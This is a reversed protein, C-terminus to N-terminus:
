EMTQCPVAPKDSCWPAHNPMREAYTMVTLAVLAAAALAGLALFLGLLVRAWWM